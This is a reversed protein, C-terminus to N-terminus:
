KVEEKLPNHPCSKWHYSVEGIAMDTLYWKGSATYCLDVSWLDDSWSSAAKAIEIANIFNDPHIRTELLDRKWDAPEPEGWFEISEEPWYPHYCQIKGKKSFFRFERAVPMGKFAKFKYDLVLFERIAVAKYDLGMFGCVENAEFLRQLNDGLQSEREVYCTERWQHKAAAQDTRIFVPYGIEGAVLKINNLMVNWFTMDVDEDNLLKYIEFRDVPEFVTVPTPLGLERIKPYWYTMSNKDVESTETM